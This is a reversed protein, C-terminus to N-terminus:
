TWSQCWCPTKRDFPNLKHEVNHAVSGMAVCVANPCSMSRSKCKIKMPQVSAYILWESQIVSFHGPTRPLTMHPLRNGVTKVQVTMTNLGERSLSKSLSALLRRLISCALFADNFWCWRRSIAPNSSFPFSSLALIRTSCIMRSSKSVSAISINSSYQSRKLARNPISSCILYPAPMWRILPIVCSVLSPSVPVAIWTDLSCHATHNPSSWSSILHLFQSCYTTAQGPRDIASLRESM